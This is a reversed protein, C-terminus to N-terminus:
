SALGGPGVFELLERHMNPFARAYIEVTKGLEGPRRYTVGISEDTFSGDDTFAAVFGPVDKDEALKYANRIAQENDPSTM